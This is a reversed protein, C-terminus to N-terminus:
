GQVGANQLFALQQEEPLQLFMEQEEPSLADLVEKLQVGSDPSPQMEGVGAMDQAQQTQQMQQQALQEAQEIKRKTNKILGTLDPIVGNPLRELYDLVDIVQSKLLSDLTQISQSESWLTSAGVDIRVSIMLNKYREGDFPVYYTGAKDKIQIARQGYLNVWFQAWIRATDEIFQYYRNRFVQLPMTAAERVAIIASMNDARLDGLAADNAGAMSLTNQILSQVNNDFQASFNPPTVYQIANGFDQAAGTYKIIQGPTNTIPQDIADANVLLNPMGLMMVAWVSATLMRNISIQNPILYTIESEGYACAQRREWCFKAIPYLKIALDWPKRIVCSKVVKIGMIKYSGDDKYEKYLKTLVTCKKSDAPEATDAGYGYNNYESDPKISEIDATSIGNQKAERKVEGVSKRQALIIFPQRQVDDENPDGFDVNEINLVECEIDGTIPVNKGDDAYLGTKVQDDWYTYLVGTGTIYANRLAQECKANFRLREATVNYYNSLADMMLNIQDNENMQAFGTADGTQLQQKVQDFKDGTLGNEDVVDRMQATNPIGEASYNATVPSSSLMAMKYEGIRKIVNHRVLPRDRSVKAGYWQDGIYFRENKRAQEFLGKDTMGSKFSIAADHEKFIESPDLKIKEKM